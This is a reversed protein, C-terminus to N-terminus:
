VRSAPEARRNKRISVKSFQRYFVSFLARIKSAYVGLFCKNEEWSRGPNKVAAMQEGELSELSSGQEQRYRIV